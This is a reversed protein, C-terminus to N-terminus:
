AGELMKKMMSNALVGSDNNSGYSGIDYMTLSYDADCVALLVM